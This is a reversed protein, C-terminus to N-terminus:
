RVPPIVGQEYLSMVASVCLGRAKKIGTEDHLINPNIVGRLVDEILYRAPPYLESLVRRANKKRFSKLATSLAFWGAELLVHNYHAPDDIGALLYELREPSPKSREVKLRRYIGLIRSRAQLTESFTGTGTGVTKELERLRKEPLIKSLLPIIKEREPEIARTLCSDGAAALTHYLFGASDMELLWASFERGALTEIAYIYRTISRIDNLVRCCRTNEERTLHHFVAEEVSYLVGALDRRGLTSDSRLRDMMSIVEEKSSSSLTSKIVPAFDPLALVLLCIQYPTLLGRHRLGTMIDWLEAPSFTELVPHLRPFLAFPQKFFNVIEQDVLSSDCGQYIKKTFRRVFELPFLITLQRQEDHYSAIDIHCLESNYEPTASSVRARVASKLVVCLTNKVTPIISELALSLRTEEDNSFGGCLYSFTWRHDDLQLELTYFTSLDEPGPGRDQVPSLATASAGTISRYLEEYGPFLM